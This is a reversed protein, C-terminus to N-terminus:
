YEFPALPLVTDKLPTASLKELLIGRTVSMSVRAISEYFRQNIIYGKAPTEAPKTFLADFNLVEFLTEAKIMAIMLENDKERIGVESLIAVIRNSGQEAPNAIRVFQKVDYDFASNAAFQDKNFKFDIARAGIIRYQKDLTTM